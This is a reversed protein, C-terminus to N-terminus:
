VPRCASKEDAGEQLVARWARLFRFTQPTTALVHGLETTTM